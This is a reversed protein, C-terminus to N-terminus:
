NTSKEKRLSLYFKVFTLIIALVSVILFFISFEESTVFTIALALFLMSQWILSRSIKDKDEILEKDKIDQKLYAKIYVLRDIQKQGIFALIFIVLLLPIMIYLQKYGRFIFMTIISLFLYFTESLGLYLLLDTESIYRKNEKHCKPCIIHGVYMKDFNVDIDPSINEGCKDCYIKM